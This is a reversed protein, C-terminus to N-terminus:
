SSIRKLLIEAAGPNYPNALRGMLYFGHSRASQLMKHLARTENGPIKYLLEAKRREVLEVDEKQEELFRVRSMDFFDPQEKTIDKQNEVKEDNSNSFFYDRPLRLQMPLKLHLEMAIQTPYLEEPSFLESFVSWEWGDIDIKLLPMTCRWEIGCKEQKYLNEVLQRWTVFTARSSSTTEGMNDVDEVHDEVEAALLPPM